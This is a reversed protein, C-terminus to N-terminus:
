DIEPRDRIWAAAALDLVPQGVDQHDRDAGHDGAGLAPVVDREVAAALQGPEPGEQRQRVADGRVVGEPAHEYQDIGLRELSAERGPSARKRSAELALHDGDIALRESAREVMLVLVRRQVQDTGPGALLIKHQALTADVVRRVLDGGDRLALAHLM